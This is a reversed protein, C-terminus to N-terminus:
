EDKKELKKWRKEVGKKVGAHVQNLKEYDQRGLHIRGKVQGMGNRKINKTKKTMESDPKRMAEQLLSEDRVTVERDPVLTFRPGVETLSVYPLKSAPMKKEADTKEETKSDADIKSSKQLKVKYHRFIIRFDSSSKPVVSKDEPKPATVVPKKEAVTSSKEDSTKALSEAEDKKDSLLGEKQIRELIEKANLQQQSTDEKLHVNKGGKGKEVATMVIVSDLHEVAVREPKAGRFFDLLISRNNKMQQTEEWGPGQFVVLPKAGLQPLSVGKAFGSTIDECTFEAQDLIEKNFVRGIVLRNPRKKTSSGFCFLGYDYKNLMNIFKYEPDDMPNLDDHKRMFSVSLPKKIDHIDRMLNTLEEKTRAGRLILTQKAEEVDKSERQKMIRRGRATKPVNNVLTKLKPVQDLKAASIKKKGKEVEAGAIRRKKSLSKRVNKAM